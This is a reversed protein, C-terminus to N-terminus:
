TKTKLTSVQLAKFAVVSGVTDYTTTLLPLGLQSQLLPLQQCMNGLLAAGGILVCTNPPGQFHETDPLMILDAGRMLMERLTPSFKAAVLSDGTAPMNSCDVIVAVNNAPERTHCVSSLTHLQLFLSKRPYVYPRHFVATVRNSAVAMQLMDRDMPTTPTGLNWNCAGVLSSCLKPSGAQCCTDHLVTPPSATKQSIQPNVSLPDQKLLIAVLATVYAAARSPCVLAATSDSLGFIMVLSKSAAQALQVPNATSQLSM